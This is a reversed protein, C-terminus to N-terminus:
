GMWLKRLPGQLHKFKELCIQKKGSVVCPTIESLVSEIRYRYLLARQKLQNFRESESINGNASAIGSSVNMNGNAPAIGSAPVVKLVVSSDASIRGTLDIILAYKHMELSDSAYIGVVGEKRKGPSDEAAVGFAKLLICIKRREREEGAVVCLGRVPRMKTLSFIVAMKEVEDAAGVYFVGKRRQQKLLVYGQLDEGEGAGEDETETVVVVKDGFIQKVEEFLGLGKIIGYGDVVVCEPLRGEDKVRRVAEKVCMVRTDGQALARSLREREERLPTVVLVSEGPRSVSSIVGLVDGAARYARPM